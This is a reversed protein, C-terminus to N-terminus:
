VKNIIKKYISNINKIIQFVDNKKLDEYIPICFSKTFYKESNPFNKKKFNRSYYKHRYIPLYKLTLYINKNQLEHYFIKKQKFTINDEFLIVFLHYCSLSNKSIKQFNVPLKQKNILNIYHNAVINRKRVISKIRKLQSFALACNIESIKYNYGLYSMNDAWPFKNDTNDIGHRRLTKAKSFISKKNSLFLGGEGSTITKTPQMSFITGESYKCNGVPLNNFESGLAQAADEIIKIKYKYCIHSLKQMDIPNGCLHVAILFKIKKKSSELFQELKELSINFTLPDIDILIPKAQCYLIVNISAVWTIASTIVLDNKKVGCAKLALHLAASGSSVALCYKSRFIKASSNELKTLYKGQSIYKSNLAKNVEKIDSKSIKHKAFNYKKM